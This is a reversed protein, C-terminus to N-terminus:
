LVNSGSILHDVYSTKGSEIEEIYGSLLYIRDAPDLYKWLHGLQGTLPMANDASRRNKWSNFRKTASAKMNAADSQNVAEDIGQQQALKLFNGSSKNIINNTITFSRKNM